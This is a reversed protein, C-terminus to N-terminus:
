AITQIESRGKSVHPALHRGGQGLVCCPRAVVQPQSVVDQSLLAPLFAPLLAQKLHEEHRLDGNLNCLSVCLNWSSSCVLRVTRQGFGGPSTFPRM